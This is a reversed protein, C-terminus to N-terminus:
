KCNREKKFGEIKLKSEKKKAIKDQKASQRVKQRQSCEVLRVKPLKKSPRPVM